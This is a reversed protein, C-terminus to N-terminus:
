GRHIVTQETMKVVSIGTQFYICDAIIVYNWARKVNKGSYPITILPEASAALCVSTQSAYWSPIQAGSPYPHKKKRGFLKIVAYGRFECQFFDPRRPPM